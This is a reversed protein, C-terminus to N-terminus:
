AACPRREMEALTTRWTALVAGEEFGAQFRVRGGACLQGRLGPDDLVTRLAAALAEPSERPVLLGDAGHGILEAPGEADAAVVACGASWAELVTNGLPERRSPVALVVAAALLAATDTRWGPMDVRNAVGLDRALAELGPREPGEGALLLRVDPPLLALARVLVDFGKNPHLRGLALVTRGPPLAAPAAGQLDPAFNPLHVVRGAPWGQGVIWRVLGKTNGALYDCRRFHRLDYFGGLRGLLVWPGRPAARAARSMWAVVVEPGAERVVRRLRLPTFPDLAGRFPLEVPHLGAARLREARATNRRIVPLVADGAREQAAVLREFFLEAGGAHAGAMVHAIRM